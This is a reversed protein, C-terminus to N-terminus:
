SNPAKGLCHTTLGESDRMHADSDAGTPAPEATRVSLAYSCQVPWVSPVSWGVDMGGEGGWRWGGFCGSYGGAGGARVCTGALGVGGRRGDFVGGRGWRRERGFEDKEGGVDGM